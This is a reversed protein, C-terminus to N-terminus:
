RILLSAPSMLKSKFTLDAESPSKTAVEPRWDAPPAPPPIVSAVCNHESAPVGLKFDAPLLGALETMVFEALSKSAVRQTLENLPHGM